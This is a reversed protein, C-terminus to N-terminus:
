LRELKTGHVLRQRCKVHWCARHRSLATEMGDGEDWAHVFSSIDRPLEGLQMHKNVTESLSRYGCGADARKSDAPCNIKWNRITRQCFLCKAWDFAPPTAM